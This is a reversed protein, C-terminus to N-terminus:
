FPKRQEWVEVVAWKAGAGTGTKRVKLVGRTYEGIAESNNEAKGVAGIALDPVAAITKYAVVDNLLPGFISGDPGHEVDMGVQTETQDGSQLVKVM